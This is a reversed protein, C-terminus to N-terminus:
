REFNGVDRPRSRPARDACFIPPHFNVVRPWSENSLFRLMTGRSKSNILADLTTVLGRLTEAASFLDLCETSMGRRLGFELGPPSGHRVRLM